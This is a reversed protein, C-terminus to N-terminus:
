LQTDCPSFVKLDGIRMGIGESSDSQNWTKLFRKPFAGEELMGTTINEINSTTQRKKYQVHYDAKPQAM